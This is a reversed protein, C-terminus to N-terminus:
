KWKGFVGLYVYGTVSSLYTPRVAYYRGTKTTTGDGAGPGETFCSAGTLKVEGKDIPVSAFAFPYTAQGYSASEYMNGWAVFDGTTFSQRGWCIADGSSFKIYTWIGSTGSAVVYDNIGLNVLAAAATTAGTGGSAIPVAMNFIPSGTFLLYDASIKATSSGSYGSESGELGCLQVFSQKSSAPVYSQLYTMSQSEAYACQIGDTLNGSDDIKGIKYIDSIDLKFVTTDQQIKAQGNLLDISVSQTNKDFNKGLYIASKSFTASDVTGDRLEIGSDTSIKVNNGSTKDGAVSLLYLGTSDSELFNGTAQVISISTQAMQVTTDGAQYCTVRVYRVGDVATQITSYALSVTSNDATATYITTWTTNDTSAEIVFRGSYATDTPVDNEIKRLWSKASITAPIFAGSPDQEVTQDNVIILYTEGSASEATQQAKDIATQMRDGGGVVGTVTADKATAGVLTVTVKDGTKVAVETALEVYQPYTGETSTDEAITTGGLDVTVVGNSSDSMATGTTTSTATSKGAQKERRQTNFLSQAIDIEDAM